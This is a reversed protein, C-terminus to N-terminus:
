LPGCFRRKGDITEYYLFHNQTAELVQIEESSIINM